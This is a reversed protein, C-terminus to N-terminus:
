TRLVSPDGATRSPSPSAADREGSPFHTMEMWAPEGGRTTIRGVPAPSDLVMGTPESLQVFAVQNGSPLRIRSCHLSGPRLSPKYTLSGAAPVGRGIVGPRGVSGKAMEGSPLSM